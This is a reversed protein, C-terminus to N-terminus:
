ELTVPIEVTQDSGVDAVRVLWRGRPANLALPHRIEFEPQALTLNQDAETRRRGTPDTVEVRLVHHVKTAGGTDLRGSVILADSRATARLGTMRPQYPLLALVVSEGPALEIPVQDVYGRYARQRVDYVHSKEPLYLTQTASQGQYYDSFFKRVVTLVRTGEKARLFQEFGPANRDPAGVGVGVRVGATALFDRVLDAVGTNVAFGAQYPVIAFDSATFTAGYATPQFNLTVARGRQFPHVIGYPIDAVTATAKAAPRLTLGTELQLKGIPTDHSQLTGAGSRTFGLLDDLAGATVPRGAADRAGARVDALVTGGAAVYRKIGAVVNDPLCVAFPLVLVKTNAPTVQDIDASKVYRYGIGLDDFIFQWASWAASLTAAEGTDYKAMHLSTQSHLIAVAQDARPAEHLLRAIGARVQAVQAAQNSIAVMKAPVGSTGLDFGVAGPEGTIRWWGLANLGHATQKWVQYNSAPVSGHGNSWLGYIAGPPKFSALMEWRYPYEYSQLYECVATIGEMDYGCESYSRFMGEFGIKTAPDIERVDQKCALIFDIVVADMHLRHDLWRVPQNAAQADAMAVGGAEEWAKLDTGWAQNLKAITGYKKELWVRFDRQTSEALCVDPGGPYALLFEDGLSYFPPRVGYDRYYRAATQLQARANQRYAPDSLCPTRELSSGRYIVDINYPVSAQDFALSATTAPHAVKAFGKPGAVRAMLTVETDYLDMGFRDKCFWNIFQMPMCGFYATSWALYTVDHREPQPVCVLTTDLAVPKAAADLLEARLTHLRATATAPLPFEFPVEATTVPVTEDLVVRDHIDALRLRLRGTAPATLRVTGALQQDNVRAQEVAIGAIRAPATIILAHTAFALVRDQDDLLRLELQADGAPLWGPQLETQEGTVPQTGGALRQGKATLVRYWLRMAGAPLNALRVTVPSDGAPITAAAVALDVPPTRGAAWLISRILLQQHYEYEHTQEPDFPIFPCLAAGLYIGQTGGFNEYRDAKPFPYDLFVARGAAIQCTRVLASLPQRTPKFGAHTEIWGMRLRPLPLGGLIWSAGAPAASDRLMKLEDTVVPQEFVIVLGKGQSARQFIEFRRDIPLNAWTFNGIVYVDYDAQLKAALEAEKEAQSDGKWRSMMASRGLASPSITVVETFDLDLRQWLETLERKGPNNILCFVKLKGGALPRAWPIHPTAVRTDVTLYYDNVARDDALPVIQVDDLRAVGQFGRTSEFQLMFQKADDDAIFRATVEQWGTVAPKPRLITQAHKIPVGPAERAIVRGQDDLQMVKFQPVANTPNSEAPEVAMWVRAEYHRGPVVTRVFGIWRPLETVPGTVRILVAASDQRGQKTWELSKGLETAPAATWHAPASGGANQEFDANLALNEAAPLVPSLALMWLLGICTSRMNM